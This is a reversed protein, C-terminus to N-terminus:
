LAIIIIVIIIIMIHGKKGQYDASEELVRSKEKKIMPRQACSRHSDMAMPSWRAMGRPSSSGNSERDEMEALGGGISPGTFPM